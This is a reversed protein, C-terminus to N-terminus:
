FPIDWCQALTQGRMVDAGRGKCYRRAERRQAESCPKQRMRWYFRQCRRQTTSAPVLAGRQMLKKAQRWRM